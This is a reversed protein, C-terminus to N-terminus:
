ASHGPIKILLIETPNFFRPIHVTNTVGRSVILRGGDYVGATYRPFLGQGPAFVGRGFLEWQGGHAHGAVTLEIETERIYDPYYEPHHCLLIRPSPLAAFRRLVEHKPPPTKEVDSRYESFFGSTLGCISIGCFETSSDDLLSIGLEAIECRDREEIHRDHNGLSMFVPLKLENTLFSLFAMVDERRGRTDFIDGPMLVADPSLGRVAVALKPSIKAHLDSIVCLCLDRRVGAGIDATINTIKMKCREYKLSM